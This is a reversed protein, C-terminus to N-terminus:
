GRRQVDFCSVDVTMMWQALQTRITIRGMLILWCIFSNSRIIWGEWLLTYWDVLPQRRRITHCVRKLQFRPMPSADWAFDDAVRSARVISLSRVKLIRRWIWSGNVAKVEWITKRKIRYRYMWAVWLSGGRTFLSWLHRLVKASNWTYFDKLGVGGEEKPMALFQWAVKCKGGETKGWLFRNCIDEIDRLLTKPLLFVSM